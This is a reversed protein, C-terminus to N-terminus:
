SSASFGHIQSSDKNTQITVLKDQTFLGLALNIQYRRTYGQTTNGNSSVGPPLDTSGVGPFTPAYAFPTNPSTAPTLVPPTSAQLTGAGQIYKQRVNVLGFNIPDNGLGAGNGSAADVIYGGLGDAISGQDITGKPSM